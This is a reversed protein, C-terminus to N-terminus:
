FFHLMPDPNSRYQGPTRGCHKRFVRCYYNLSDFGCQRAIRKIQGDPSQLLPLSSELRLRTLYQMPSLAFTKRFLRSLAEPTYGLEGCIRVISIQNPFNQHLHERLADAAPSIAQEPNLYSALCGLYLRYAAASEQIAAHTLPQTRQPLGRSLGAARVRDVIQAMQEALEPTHRMNWRPCARINPPLWDGTQPLIMSVYEFEWPTGDGEYCYLYPGPRQIMFAMGPLLEMRRGAAYLVGCGRITRKILVRRQMKQSGRCDNRYGTGTVAERNAAYFCVPPSWDEPM